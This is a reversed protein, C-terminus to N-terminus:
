RLDSHWAIEGILLFSVCFQQISQLLFVSTKSPTEKEILLLCRYKLSVILTKNRMLTELGMKTNFSNRTIQEDEGKFLNNDEIFIAGLFIFVLDVGDGIM